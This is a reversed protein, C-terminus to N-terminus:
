VHARGIKYDSPFNLLMNVCKEVLVQDDGFVHAHKLLWAFSSRELLVQVDDPTLPVQFRQELRGEASNDDFKALRLSGGWPMIAQLIRRLADRVADDHANRTSAVDFHNRKNVVAQQALRMDSLRIPVKGDRLLDDDHVTAGGAM